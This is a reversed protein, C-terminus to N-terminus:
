GCSRRRSSRPSLTKAAHSLWSSARDSLVIVSDAGPRDEDDSFVRGLAPPVGLAAFFNGSVLLGQLREAPQGDRILVPSSGNFTVMESFVDNRTRFDIFKAASHPWSDSHISTRFVQVLREPQPYPLPRLM